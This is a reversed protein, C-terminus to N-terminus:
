FRDLLRELYEREDEDPTQGYRKRLEELIDKARQREAEEPIQVTRSDNVGGVPNGFPDTSEAENREEWDEGLRAARLADLDGALGRSLDRLQRTAEEQSRSARFDNGDELNDAARRQAREIAELTERDLGEGEGAGEGWRRALEEVLDGLEQQRDALSGGRERRDEGEGPEEGQGQPQNGTEGRQRAMTEDNLERQQRLLESLERLTDSMEREEQPVDSDDENEGQEGPMGPMGDGSGNGQQFELNELMSTIDSLLQRAQDSAGTETLDELADLMDAFDQGGLGQGGSSDASDTDNPPANLGNALAEAMRAALYNQAAQKFAEMRRQIEAESAGDRLAEELAAKAAQLARLADAATGYEARLALSWLIPETSQADPSSVASKLIAHTNRLGIYLTIDQFYRPAEYTIADLMLAARQVGPPAYAIRESGSTFMSGEVLGDTQAPIDQYSAQERLLTVRVDQIARALPQLFLREPVVFDVAESMGEQGSGDTAVLRASVELGAYPHRTLDLSATDSAEQPSVAGLDVPMRDSDGAGAEDTRTLMLELREVGYDDTVSWKFEAKDTPTMEPTSVWEVKPRADPTVSVTWVKREGWWHLAIESSADITIEAEYGGEPTTEFDSKSRKGGTLSVLQPTSPAEARITMRSGAPVALDTQGSKLFIPARGTYQPPTIWAEIRINEAGFLSGVDPKLARSLRGPANVNAAVLFGVLLVPLVIRLWLPDRARWESMFDPVRLRRVEDTLRVEHARWLDVGAREPRSPRDSLTSLPRLSSQQDLRRIADREDPKRFRVLGYVCAVAMSVLLMISVIASAKVGIQSAAGSFAFIMFASAAILLPGFARAFALLWLGRYTRSVRSAVGPIRKLEAM